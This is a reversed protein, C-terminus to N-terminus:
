LDVIEVDIIGFNNLEQANWRCESRLLTDLCRLLELLAFTFRLSCLGCVKISAGIVANNLLLPWGNESLRHRVVHFELRRQLEIRIIRAPDIGVIGVVGFFVQLEM